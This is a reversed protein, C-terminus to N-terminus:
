ARARPHPRRGSNLPIGTRGLLRQNAADQEILTKMQQLIEDRRTRTEADRPQGAVQQIQIGLRGVLEKEQQLLATCEAAQGRALLEAVQRSLATATTCTAEISDWFSAAPHPSAAHPDPM